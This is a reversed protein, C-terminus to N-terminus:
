ARDLDVGHVHLDPRRRAIQAALHGSGCGADLVTGDRPAAAAIDRAARRYMGGLMAGVHRDCFQGHTFHARQIVRRVATRM